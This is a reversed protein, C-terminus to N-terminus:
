HPNKTYSKLSLNVNLVDGCPELLFFPLIGQRYPDFVDEGLLETKTCNLKYIFVVQGYLGGQTTKFMHCWITKFAGIEFLVM